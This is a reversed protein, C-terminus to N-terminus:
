TSVNCHAWYYLVTRYKRHTCRSNIKLHSNGCKMGRFWNFTIDHTSHAPTDPQHIFFGLHQVITEHNALCVGKWKNPKPPQTQSYKPFSGHPLFITWQPALGLRWPKYCSSRMLGEWAGSSRKSDAIRKRLYLAKPMSSSDLINVELDTQAM